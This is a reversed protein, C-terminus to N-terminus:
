VGCVKTLANGADGIINGNGDLICINSSNSSGGDYIKDSPCCPLPPCITMMCELAGTSFGKQTRNEKIKKLDLKGASNIAKRKKLEIYLSMDHTKSQINKSKDTEQNWPIEHVKDHISTTYSFYTILLGIATLGLLNGIM